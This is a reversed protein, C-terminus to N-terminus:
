IFDERMPTFVDVLTGPEICVVGHIIGGDVLYTDGARLCATKGDITVDFVGSVVYACQHHPHSHPQGIAGAEFDVRVMMLKDDYSLIKRRMGPGAPQWDIATNSAFPSGKRSKITNM